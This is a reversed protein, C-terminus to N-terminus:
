AKAGLEADVWMADRRKGTYGCERCGAGILCGHNLDNEYHESGSGYEGLECCGTCHSTWSIAELLVDVEDERRASPGIAYARRRDLRQASFAEAERWHVPRITM